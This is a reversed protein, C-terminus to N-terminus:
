RAFHRPGFHNRPLAKREAAVLQDLEGPHLPSVFQFGAKDGEVWV